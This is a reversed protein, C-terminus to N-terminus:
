NEEELWRVLAVVAVGGLAYVTWRMAGEPILSDTLKHGLFAFGALMGFQRVPSVWWPRSEEDDFHCGHECLEDECTGCLSMRCWQSLDDPHVDQSNM